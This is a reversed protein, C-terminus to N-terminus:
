PNIEFRKKTRITAGISSLFLDKEKALQIDQISERLVHKRKTGLKLYRFAGYLWAFPRLQKHKAYLNWHTEGSEQLVSFFGKITRSNRLVSQVSNSINGRKKIGFNGVDFVYQLYQECVEPSVDKCWTLDKEELGLYLQGLRTTTKALQTLGLADM